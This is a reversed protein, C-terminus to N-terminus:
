SYGCGCVNQADAIGKQINRGDERAWDPHIFGSRPSLVVGGQIRRSSV